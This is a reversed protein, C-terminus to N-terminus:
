THCKKRQLEQHESTDGQTNQGEALNWFEAADTRTRTRTRTYTHSWHVYVGSLIRHRQQNHQLQHFEPWQARNIDCKITLRKM